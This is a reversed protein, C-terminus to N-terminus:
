ASPEKKEPEKASAETAARDELSAEDEDFFSVQREEETMAREEVTEKTDKRRVLVKSTQYDLVLECEVGRTEWGQRLIQALGAARGKHSKIDEDYGKNADAKAKEVDRMSSLAEAMELGKIRQEEHTLDCRLTRQVTKRKVGRAVGVEVLKGKSSGKAKAM